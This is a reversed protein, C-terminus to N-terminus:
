AEGGDDSALRRAMYSFDVFRTDLHVDFRIEVGVEKKEKGNEIARNTTSSPALSECDNSFFKYIKIQHARIIGTCGKEIGTNYM